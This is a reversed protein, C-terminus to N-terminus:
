RLFKIYNKWRSLLSPKKLKNSEFLEKTKNRQLKGSTTKPLVGPPLIKVEDVRVGIKEVITRKITNAIRGWERKKARSELVVVVSEKNKNKVGFAVVNGRRVGNVKSVAWEIDQPYYNKGRIIIIDKKRGCVYLKGDVLYGLDGTYLWGDKLVKKTAEENNYYGKMVSPGSIVIEGVEREGLVKDEENKILLNHGRFQTGCCVITLGDENTPIARKREYLASPIIRDYIIGEGPSAFTVALTAEALGYASLFSTWSFGVGKFQTSFNKLTDYSIPEAACGAIRWSSLDLGDFSKVRRACLAYAFNPAFSITARYKTIAKLWEVPHRIFLFPSIFVMPLKYFIPAIVCGILGM